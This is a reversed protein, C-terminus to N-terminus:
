ATYERIEMPSPVVLPAERQAIRAMRCGYMALTAM